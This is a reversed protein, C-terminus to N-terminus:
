SEEYTWRHHDPLYAYGQHEDVTAKCTPCQRLEPDFYTGCHDCFWGEPHDPDTTPTAQCV